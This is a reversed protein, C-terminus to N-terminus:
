FLVNRTKFLATITSCYFFKTAYNRLVTFAALSLDASPNL